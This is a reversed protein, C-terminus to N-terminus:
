LHAVPYHAPVFRQVLRQVGGHLHSAGVERHEDLALAAHSLFDNRTDDVVEAQALVLSVDGDVASTNGVM